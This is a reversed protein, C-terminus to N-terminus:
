DLDFYFHKRDRRWRRSSSGSAADLCDFRDRAPMVAISSSAQKL